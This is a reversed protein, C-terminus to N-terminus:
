NIAVRASLIRGDRFVAITIEQASSIKHIRNKLDASSSVPEGNVALIVDGRRIGALDAPGNKEVELVVVAIGDQRETEVVLDAFSIGLRHPHSVKGTAILQAAVERATDIPIAFGINQADKRVMVNVGIVEGRINLLPGGSNGPNIAADTQILHTPGFDAFSRNLASVIGLTVSQQLGLPSGIAVVWDGPRLKKSEGLGAAALGRKEIKLVALDTEPDRGVLKARIPKPESQLTVRIEDAADVVHNNTLIYGDDRIIFGSGLGKTQIPETGVLFDILSEAPPTITASTDINVTSKGAAQALDAITEVGIAASTANNPSPVTMETSPLASKQWTDPRLSQGLLVLSAGLVM